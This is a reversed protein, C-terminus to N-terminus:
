VLKEFYVSQDTLIGILHGIFPIKPKLLPPERPDLRVAMRQWCIMLFGAVLLLLTFTYGDLSTKLSELFSMVVNFRM